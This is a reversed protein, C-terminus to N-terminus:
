AMVRLLCVRPLAGRGYSTNQPRNCGSHVCGGSSKGGGGGGDGGGGGSDGRMCGNLHHQHVSRIKVNVVTGVQPAHVAPNRHSPPAQRGSAHECQETRGAHFM